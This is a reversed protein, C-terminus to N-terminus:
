GSGWGKRTICTTISGCPHLLWWFAVCGLWLGCRHGCAHHSRDVRPVTGPPNSVPRQTLARPPLAHPGGDVNFLVVRQRIPLRLLAGCAGKVVDNTLVDPRNQSPTCFMTAMTRKVRGQELGQLMV